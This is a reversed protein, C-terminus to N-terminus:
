PQYTPSTAKALIHCINGVKPALLRTLRAHCVHLPIFITITEDRICLSDSRAGNSYPAALNSQVICLDLPDSSFGLISFCLSLHPCPVDRHEKTQPRHPRWVCVFTSHRIQLKSLQCEQGRLCCAHACAHWVRNLRTPLHILPLFRLYRV